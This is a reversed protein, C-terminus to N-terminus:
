IPQEDYVSNKILKIKFV